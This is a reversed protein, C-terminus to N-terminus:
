QRHLTDSSRESGRMIKSWQKSYNSSFAIQPDIQNIQMCNAAVYVVNVIVQVLPRPSVDEAGATSGGHEDWGEVVVSDPGEEAEEHGGVSSPVEGDGGEEM